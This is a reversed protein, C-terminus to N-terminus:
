SIHGYTHSGTHTDTHTGPHPWTPIHANVTSNHACMFLIDAVFHSGFNRRFNGSSRRQCSFQALLVKVNQTYKGM